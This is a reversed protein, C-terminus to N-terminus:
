CIGVRHAFAYRQRRWSDFRQRDGTLKKLAHHWATYPDTDLREATTDNPVPIEPCQQADTSMWSYYSTRKAVRQRRKARSAIRGAQQRQNRTRSSCSAVAHAVGRQVRQAAVFGVVAIPGERGQGLSGGLSSFM